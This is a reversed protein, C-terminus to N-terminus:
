APMQAAIALLEDATPQDWRDGITARAYFKVMENVVMPHRWGSQQLRRRITPHVDRAVMDDMLSAVISDQEVDSLSTLDAVVRERRQRLWEEEWQAKRRQDLTLSDVARDAAPEERVTLQRQALKEAEGPMLSKLYRYPDRLPGPFATAIRKELAALGSRLADAGFSDLLEEAHDDTVGLKQALVVLSLDVPEPPHRLPLPTQAKRRVLFQLESIFRGEKHEVLEVELDTIANVEAIAPKLTDRKFFRYELKQTRPSEPQGSLVPRWWPWPQRSTRGVDKYRTCIEYLAIGAHTRLQSIIEISLKAFVSPELLEQKLEISYSWEIWNQGKEKSIKAHALLGSVTWSSGEGTTPSQWEVTTAAMSRLHKKILQTDNSDFDLGAIVEGVLARYTAREIGQAQAMHLMVNYAKRALPTIRKSQPVIALTNVPKRLPDVTWAEAVVLARPSDPKRTRREPKSTSETVM